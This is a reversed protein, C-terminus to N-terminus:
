NPCDGSAARLASLWMEAKSKNWGFLLGPAGGNQISESRDHLAAGSIKFIRIYSSDRFSFRSPASNNILQLQQSSNRERRPKSAYGTTDTKIHDATIIIIIEENQKEFLM